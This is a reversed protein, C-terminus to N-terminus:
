GFEGGEGRQGLVRKKQEVQETLLVYFPLYIDDFIIKGFKGELKWVLYKGAAL